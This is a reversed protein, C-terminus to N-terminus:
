PGHWSRKKLFQKASDQPKAARFGAPLVKLGFNSSPKEPLKEAM